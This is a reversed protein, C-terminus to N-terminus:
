KHPSCLFLLFYRAILLKYLHASLFIPISVYPRQVTRILKGYGWRYYKDTNDNQFFFNSGKLEETCVKCFKEYESRTMSIDADDDWPIFGKHRVAGLLSGSDLIYQINYKDCIRDVEELLELEILQLKRHEESNLHKQKNKIM